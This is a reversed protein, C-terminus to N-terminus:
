APARLCRRLDNRSPRFRVAAARRHSARDAPLDGARSPGRLRSTAPLGRRRPRTPRRRLGCRMGGLSGHRWGDLSRSRAPGAGSAAKRHDGPRREDPDILLRATADLRARPPSTRLATRWRCRSRSASARAAGMKPNSGSRARGHPRDPARTIALGLGTGDIGRDHENEVQNFEGFIHDLMDARIGIGTDEVTVHVRWLGDGRPCVSSRPRRRPRDDTFKIANGILNTLVQRIRGPDGVFHTPLFM